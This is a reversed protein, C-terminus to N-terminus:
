KEENFYEFLRREYCLECQKSNHIEFAMEGWNEVENFNPYIVTPLTSYSDFDEKSVDYVNLASCGIRDFHDNNFNLNEPYYGYTEQLYKKALLVPKYDKHFDAYEVRLVAKEGWGCTRICQVGKTDIMQKEVFYDVFSKVENQLGFDVSLTETLDESFLEPLREFELVSKKADARAVDDLENFSFAIIMKTLRKM